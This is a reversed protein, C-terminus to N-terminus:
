PSPTKSIIYALTLGRSNKMTIFYTYVMEELDLWKSHSFKDYKDIDANNKGNEYDLKAEDIFDEIM